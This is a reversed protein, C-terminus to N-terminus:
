DAQRRRVEYDRMIDAVLGIDDRDDIGHLELSVIEDAGPEYAILVTAAAIPYDFWRGAESDTEPLGAEIAAWDLDDFRYGLLRSMVELAARLNETWIWGLDM